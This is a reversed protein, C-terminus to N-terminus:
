NPGDAAAAPSAPCNESCTTAAAPQRLKGSVRITAGSGTQYSPADTGELADSNGGTVVYGGQANSRSRARGGASRAGANTTQIASSARNLSGAVNGGMSRAASGTGQGTGSLITATEAAAQAWAAGPWGAVLLVAACTPFPRMAM